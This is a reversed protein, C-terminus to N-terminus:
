LKELFRQIDIVARVHTGEGILTDGCFAQVKFTLLKGDIHILEADTRIAKGPATARLHKVDVHYGVTTQGEDLLPQVASLSAMEMYAIMHPTSFVDLGSSGCTSALNSKDVTTSAQGKCGIQLKTHM